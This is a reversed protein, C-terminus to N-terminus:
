PYKLRKIINELNLCKFYRHHILIKYSYFVLFKLHKVSHPKKEFFIQHLIFIYVM